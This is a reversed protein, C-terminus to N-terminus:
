AIAGGEVPDDPLPQWCYVRHWREVTAGAVKLREETPLMDYLDGLCIPEGTDLLAKADAPSLNLAGRVVSMVALRKPGISTIVVDTDKHCGFVKPHRQCDVDTSLAAEWAPMVDDATVEYFDPMPEWEAGPPLVVMRVEEQEDM